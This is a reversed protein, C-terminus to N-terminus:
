AQSAEAREEREGVLRAEKEDLLRNIEKVLQLLKEANQEQAAQACLKKWLEGTEGKM